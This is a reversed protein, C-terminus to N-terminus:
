KGELELEMLNSNDYDLPNVVTLEGYKASIIVDGRRIEDDVIVPKPNVYGKFRPKATERAFLAPDDFDSQPQISVKVDSAVDNLISTNTPDPRKVEVDEFIGMGSFDFDWSM